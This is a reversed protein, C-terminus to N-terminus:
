YRLNPSLSPMSGLLHLTLNGAPLQTDEETDRSSQVGPNGGRSGARMSFSGGLPTKIRPQWFGWSSRGFAGPSTLTSNVQLAEALLMLEQDGITNFGRGVTYSGASVVGTRNNQSKVVAAKVSLCLTCMGWTLPASPFLGLGLDLSELTTNTKLGEALLPMELSGISCGSLDAGQTDADSMMGVVNFTVAMETQTLSARYDRPLPLAGVLGFWFWGAAM